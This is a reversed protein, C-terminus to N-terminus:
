KSVLNDLTEYRYMAGEVYELKTENSIGIRDFVLDRPRSFEEIPGRVNPDFSRVQEIM